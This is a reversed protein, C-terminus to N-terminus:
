PVSPFQQINIYKWADDYSPAGEKDRIKIMYKTLVLTTEIAVRGREGKSDSAFIQIARNYDEVAQAQQEPNWSAWPQGKRDAERWSYANDRDGTTLWASLMAILADPAYAFGGNQWQWVHTVEHVLLILGQETLSTGDQQFIASGWIDALHITNGITKSSGASLINGRTIRIKSYDISRDFTRVIYKIEDDNLNREFSSALLFNGSNSNLPTSEYTSVSNLISNIWRFNDWDNKYEIRDKFSKLIITSNKLTPLYKNVGRLYKELNDGSLNQSSNHNLYNDILVRSLPSPSDSSSYSVNPNLASFIGGLNVFESLFNAKLVEADLVPDDVAGAVQVLRQAYDIPKKVEKAYILGSFWDTNSQDFSAVFQSLGEGALKANGEMVAELWASPETATETPNTAGVRAMEFGLEILERLPGADRGPNDMYRYFPVTRAAADVLVQSYEFSQILKQSSMDQMMKQLYDYVRNGMWANEAKQGSVMIPSGLSNGPEISWQTTWILDAFSTPSAGEGAYSTEGIPRSRVYNWSFRDIAGKLADAQEVSIAMNDKVMMGRFMGWTQSEFAKLLVPKTDLAIAKAFTWGAKVADKWSIQGDISDYGLSFLGNFGNKFETSYRDYLNWEQIIKGLGMLNEKARILSNKKSVVAQHKSLVDISTNLIVDLAELYNLQRDPNPEDPNPMPNSPSWGSSAPTWNGSGGGSSYGWGGGAGIYYFGGTGSPVSGNSSSGSRSDSSGQNVIPDDGLLYSDELQSPLDLRMFSYDYQVINGARDLGKVHLKQATMKPLAELNSLAINNFNLTSRENILTTVNLAISTKTGDNVWYELSSLADRDSLSGAFRDTIDWTMGDRLGTVNLTPALTDLDFSLSQNTLKGANDKSRVSVTYRGEELSRGLISELKPRDIIVANNVLQSKVNQWNQGDLSILLEAIANSDGVSIKFDPSNTVNDGITGTDNVLNIQITTAATPIAISRGVTKVDIINPNLFESGKLLIAQRLPNNFQGPAPSQTRWLSLEGRLASTLDVNRWLIDAKGDGDFDEVGVVQWTQAINFAGWDQSEVTSLASMRWMVLKGSDTNRWLLDATRDGDFDGVGEVIWNTGIGTFSHSVLPTLQQNRISAFATNGITMDRLLLDITGDGDFDGVSSVKWKNPTLLNLSFGTVSVKFDTVTAGLKWYVISSLDKNQWLLEAKGDGDIDQAGVVTWDQKSLKIPTGGATLFAGVPGASQGMYWVAYSHDVKDYWIFDEVGNGDFDGTTEVSWRSDITGGITTSGLYETGNFRWYGLQTNSQGEVQSRWVVDTQTGSLNQPIVRETLTRRLMQQSIRNLDKTEAEQIWQISEGGQNDTSRLMLTGTGRDRWATTTKRDNLTGSGYGGSLSLGDQIFSRDQYTGALRAAGNMTWVSLNDKLPTGMWQFWLDAKGDGNQDLVSVVKWNTSLSELIPGSDGNPLLTTGNLLTMRLRYNSQADPNSRWLIDVNGDGNFDGLGQFEYQSPSALGTLNVTAFGTTGPAVQWLTVANTGTNRWLLDTVGDRNFDAMGLLVDQAGVTGLMPSDLVRNNELLLLKVEGTSKRLVVDSTRDANFDAFGKDNLVGSEVTWDTGFQRTISQSGQYTTGNFTWVGLEGTTANRWLLDQQVETTASMQLTYNGNSVGDALKVVLYYTGTTLNFLNLTEDITGATMSSKLIESNEAIGNSNLDQVLSLDM